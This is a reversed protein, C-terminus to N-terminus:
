GCAERERIKADSMTAEPMVEKPFWIRLPGLRLAGQRYTMVLLNTQGPREVQRLGILANKRYGIRM